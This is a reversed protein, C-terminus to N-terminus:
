TGLEAALRAFDEETFVSGKSEKKKDKKNKKESKKTVVRKQTLQNLLDVSRKARIPKDSKLLLRVKKQVDVQSKQAISQKLKEIQLPVAKRVDGANRKTKKTYKIQQHETETGSEELLQLSRKVLATSM